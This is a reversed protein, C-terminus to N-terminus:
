SKLHDTVTKLKTRKKRRNKTKSNKKTYGIPATFGGVAGVGSFEQLEDEELLKQLVKEYIEKEM